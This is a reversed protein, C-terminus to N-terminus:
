RLGAKFNFLSGNDIRIGDRFGQVLKNLNNYDPKQFSVDILFNEIGCESLKKRKAFLCMPTTPLTYYLNNKPSVFFSNGHPDTVTVNCDVAPPMRSIFLPPKAYVPMIGVIGEPSCTNRINLFEDEYSFVFMNVGRSKLYEQTFRNLRWLPSDAVLFTAYKVLPFHGINSIAFSEIGASLCKEVVGRWFTLRAEEIFPPLAIVIRSRWTKVTTSCNLLLEIEGIDADFILRQCPSSNLFELWEVSDTKFWLVPKNIKNNVNIKNDININFNKNINTNVPINNQNQYKSKGGRGILFVSDGINFKHNKDLSLKVNIKDDSRLCNAVRCAEGEFGNEPQIRLRDDKNINLKYTIYEKSLKVSVGCAESTGDVTGVFIGTGSARSPDIPTEGARGNLFFTTKGRGFDFRLDNMAAQLSDDFSDIASRYAKVVTSVYEAGKMRGEIKFCTVGADALKDIFPLAELDYPSFFYGEARPPRDPVAAGVHTPNVPVSHKSIGLIDSEDARLCKFKRRCVQTCRGRNGSAGGIFSSALCMGSISYCLAGHVFVETEIPSKKTTERIEDLSLERALVVRKVGLTQLFAAGNSNHVAAQTSGHVRLKPFNGSALKMLGIDAVIAADAGLQELQYLTDLAPKIESQKILTNVTAYVKVNHIHAYPILAALDRVTFNKARLRANFDGLGLYVADAGADIAAYFAETSGAPALLEPKATM